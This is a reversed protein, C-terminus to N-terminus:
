RIVELEDSGEPIHFRFNFSGEFNTNNDKYKGKFPIGWFYMDNGDMRLEVIRNNGQLLLTYNDIPLFVVDYSDDFHNSIKNEQFALEMIEKSSYFSTYKEIERNKIADLYKADDSAEIIKKLAKLKELLKQELNPVKTLDKSKTWGTLNYPVTAEFEFSKEFYPLDKAQEYPLEFNLFSDYKEMNRKDPYYEGRLKFTAYEGLHTKGELPYIRVKIIQKGSALIRMNLPLQVNIIDGKKAPFHYLLVDNVYVDWRCNSSYVPAYYVPQKNPSNPVLDIIEKVITQYNNNQLCSVNCFLTMCIIFKKLLKLTNKEPIIFKEKMM